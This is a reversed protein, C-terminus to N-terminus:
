PSTTRQRSFFGNMPSLRNVMTIIASDYFVRCTLLIHEGYKKVRSYAHRRAETIRADLHPQDIGTLKTHQAHMFTHTHAHTLAHTRAHTRAHTISHTIFALMLDRACTYTRHLKINNWFHFLRSSAVCATKHTVYKILSMNIPVQVFRQKHSRICHSCKHLM